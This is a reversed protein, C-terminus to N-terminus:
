LPICQQFLLYKRHKPSVAMFYQSLLHYQEVIFFGDDDVTISTANFKNPKTDLDAYIGGYEWLVLYRWLDAKLTGKGNLCAVMNSIHPFEPWDMAFLRDIAEDSHFYYAWDDGLIWHKIIRSVSTTLCRSRSTQHVIRPIKRNGGFLEDYPLSKDRIAVQGAHCTPLTGNGGTLLELAMRHRQSDRRLVPAEQGSVLPAGVLVQDAELVTPTLFAYGSYYATGVVRELILITLPVFFIVKFQRNSSSAM